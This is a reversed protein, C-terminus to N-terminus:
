DESKFEQVTAHKDIIKEREVRPTHRTTKAENALELNNPNNQVLLEFYHAEYEELDDSGEGFWNADIEEVRTYFPLILDADVQELPADMTDIIKFSQCDVTYIKQNLYFFLLGISASRCMLNFDEQLPTPHGEMSLHTAFIDPHIWQVSKSSKTIRYYIQETPALLLARSYGFALTVEDGVKVEWVGHPLANQELDDYEGLVIVAQKNAPDFSEVVASQLITSHTADLRHSVFGSVGVEINEIEVTAREGDLAVIRGQVVGAFIEVFMMVLIAIYRM